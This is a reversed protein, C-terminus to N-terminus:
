NFAYIERFALFCFVFLFGFVWGALVLCFCWQWPFQLVLHSLTFSFTGREARMPERGGHLLTLSWDIESSNILTRGLRGGKQLIRVVIHNKKMRTRTTADSLGTLFCLMSNKKSSELRLRPTCEIVLCESGCSSKWACINWEKKRQPGATSGQMLIFFYVRLNTEQM